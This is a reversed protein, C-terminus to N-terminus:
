IRRSINKIFTTTDTVNLNTPKNTERNRLNEIKYAKRQEPNVIIIEKNDDNENSDGNDGNLEDFDYDKEDNDSENDDDDKDDDDDDDNDDDDDGTEDVDVTYDGEAPNLGFVLMLITTIVTMLIFPIFVIIWSVIGLGRSCLIHLLLTFFVMQIFKFFAQNYLSKFIDIIIQTLAFILYIIAPSCLKNVIAM